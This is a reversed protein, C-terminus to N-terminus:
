LMNPVQEAAVEWAKALKEPRQLGQLLRKMNLVVAPPNRPRYTLNLFRAVIATLTRPRRPCKHHFLDLTTAAPVGARPCTGPRLVAYMARGLWTDSMHARFRDTPIALKVVYSLMHLAIRAPFVLSRPLHPLWATEAYEVIHVPELLHRQTAYVAHFMSMPLWIAFFMVLGLLVLVIFVGIICPIVNGRLGLLDTIDLDVLVDIGEGGGEAAVPGDPQM